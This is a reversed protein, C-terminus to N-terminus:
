KEVNEAVTSGKHVREHTPLEAVPDVNHGLNTAHHKVAARSTDPEPCTDPHHGRQRRAMCNDTVCDAENM